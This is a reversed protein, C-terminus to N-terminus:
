KILYKTKNLAVYDSIPPTQTKVWVDQRNTVFYYFAILAAWNLLVFTYPLTLLKKM